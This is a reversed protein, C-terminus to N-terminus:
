GGIYTGVFQNLENPFKFENKSLANEIFESRFKEAMGLDNFSFIYFSDAFGDVSMVIFQENIVRSLQFEKESFVLYPTLKEAIFIKEGKHEISNLQVDYQFEYQRYQSVASKDDM